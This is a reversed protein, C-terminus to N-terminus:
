PTITTRFAAVQTHSIPRGAAGQLNLSAVTVEAAPSPKVPMLTLALLEGDGGAAPKQVSAGIFINGDPNLRYTFNPDSAGPLKGPRVTVVEFHNPDVRLQMPWAQLPEKSNVRLTVEFRTGMKVQQPGTWVLTAQGAAASPPAPAIVKATPIPASAGGGGAAPFPATAGAARPPTAGAAPTPPTAALSTIVPITQKQGLPLYILTIQTQTISDVKYVGDLTEGERIPVVEDGKALLLSLKGDHVLRGAFTYPLPPAVPAPPPGPKIKAGPPIKPPPPQWNQSEFLPSESKGFGSREPLALDQGNAPTAAAASAQTSPESTRPQAPAANGREATREPAPTDRTADFVVFGAVAALTALLAATKFRIRM